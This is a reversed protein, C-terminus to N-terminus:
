STQGILEVLMDQLSYTAVLYGAWRRRGAAHVAGDGGLGLGDYMPCLLERFLRTRQVPAGNTCALAADPVCERGATLCTVPRYPTQAYARLRLNVDRWEIVYWNVASACCNPRM